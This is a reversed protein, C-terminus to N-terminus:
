VKLAPPKLSKRKDIILEITKVTLLRIESSALLSWIARGEPSGGGKFLHVLSKVKYKNALIQKNQRNEKKGKLLIVTESKKRFTAQWAFRLFNDPM